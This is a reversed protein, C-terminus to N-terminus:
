CSETHCTNGQVGQKTMSIGLQAAKINVLHLVM